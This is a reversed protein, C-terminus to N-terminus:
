NKTSINSRFRASKLKMRLPADSRGHWCIFMKEELKIKKSTQMSGFLMKTNKRKYTNFRQFQRYSDSCFVWVLLLLLLLLLLLVCSSELTELFLFEQRHQLPPSEWEFLERWHRWRRCFLLRLRHRRLRTTAQMSLAIFLMSSAAIRIKPRQSSAPFSQHGLFKPLSFYGTLRRLDSQRFFYDVVFQSWEACQTLTKIRDRKSGPLLFSRLDQYSLPVLPWSGCLYHPDDVYTM